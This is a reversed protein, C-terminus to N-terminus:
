RLGDPNGAADETIQRAEALVQWVQPDLPPPPPSLPPAPRPPRPRGAVCLLLFAVEFSAAVLFLPRTFRSM